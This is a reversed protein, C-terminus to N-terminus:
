ECHAEMLLREIKMRVEAKKKPSLTKFTKVLSMFYYEDCDQPKELDAQVHQDCKSLESKATVREREDAVDGDPFELSRPPLPQSYNVGQVNRDGSVPILILNNINKNNEKSSFFFCTLVHSQLIPRM